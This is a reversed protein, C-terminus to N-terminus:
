PDKKEEESAKEVREVLIGDIPNGSIPNIVAGM